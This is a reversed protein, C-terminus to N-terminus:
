ALESFIIGERLAFASRFLKKIGTERLIYNAAISAPIIMDVRM